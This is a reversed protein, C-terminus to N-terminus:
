YGRPHRAVFAASERLTKSWAPGTRSPDDRMGTDLRLGAVVLYMHGSHAYVTIWRGPGSRAWSMFSGSPMPATLFRGGYLAHSVTGSCDYGSDLGRGFPRHGGGYRYPKGILQNGAAIVRKVRPPASAPAVALGNRILAKKPPPPPPVFATGGTGRAASAPGAGAAMPIAVCACALAARTGLHRYRSYPM